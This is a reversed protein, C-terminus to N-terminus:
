LDRATWTLFFADRACSRMVTMERECSTGSGGPGPRSSASAPEVSASRSRLSSTANKSAWRSAVVAWIRSRLAAM